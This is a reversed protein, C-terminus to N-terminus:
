LRNGTFPISGMPTACQGTITDGNVTGTFALNIKGMPSPVEAKFAIDAGKVSLAELQIEGTSGSMTGAYVGGEESITLIPTQVGMPTNMTLQYSEPM